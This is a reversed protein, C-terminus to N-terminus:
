TRRESIIPYKIKGSLLRLKSEFSCRIGWERVASLQFVVLFSTGLMRQSDEIKERRERSFSFEVLSVCCSQKTARLRSVETFLIRFFSIRNKGRVIIKDYFFRQFFFLFFFSLPFFPFSSRSPIGSSAASVLRALRQRLTVLRVLASYMVRRVSRFARTHTYSVRACGALTSFSSVPQWGCRYVGSPRPRRLGRGSM